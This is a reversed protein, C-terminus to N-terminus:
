MDGHNCGTAPSLQDGCRTQTVERFRCRFTAPVSEERTLAVYRGQAGDVHEEANVTVVTRGGVRRAIPPARADHM